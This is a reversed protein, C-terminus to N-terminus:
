KLRHAKLRQEAVLSAVATLFRCVVVLSHGRNEAVLFGECLM